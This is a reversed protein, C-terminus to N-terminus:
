RLIANVTYSVAFLQTNLGKMDYLRPARKYSASSARQVCLNAPDQHLRWLGLSVAHGAM